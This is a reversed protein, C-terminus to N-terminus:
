ILLICSQLLVSIPPELPETRLNLSRSPPSPALVADVAPTTSFSLQFVPEPAAAQRESLTTTKGCDPCKVPSDGDPSQPKDNPCHNACAPIAEQHQVAPTERQAHCAAVGCRCLSTTAAMVIAMLLSTTKVLYAHM